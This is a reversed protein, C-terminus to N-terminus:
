HARGQYINRILHAEGRTIGCSSMLLEDDAGDRTLDIAAQYGPVNATSELRGQRLILRDVRGRLVGIAEGLRAQAEEAALAGELAVALADALAAARGAALRAQRWSLLALAM